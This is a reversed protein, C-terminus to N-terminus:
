ASQAQVSRAMKEVVRRITALDFPKEVVPNPVEAIFDRARDTFAGGTIFVFRHALAPRRAVTRAYIEMGSLEPMMLDCLVVDYDRGDLLELSAAATTAIDTDHNRLVRALAATVLEDDDIVLVRLRPENSQQARAISLHSPMTTRDAAPLVVRLTTGCPRRREATIRGGLGEVINRCISLGLGTGQGSAKTTVFPEFIRTEMGEPVGVGTDSVEIVVLRGSARTRLVIEHNAADGVPLAQAANVVLNLFVQSLQAEDGLVAAVDGYDRVLTARHRIENTAMRLTSDLVRHLDVPTVTTMGPHSFVRLDRVTQRVRDAGVMAEDIATRLDDVGPDDIAALLDRVHELNSLVYTLPNNIEHAVGAALTGVSAMRDSIRVREALRERETQDRVIMAVHDHDYVGIRVELHRARGRRRLAFEVTESAEGALARDIATSLQVFVDQTVLEQLSHELLRDASLKWTSPDPNHFDRVVYDRSVLVVLDPITGLIGRLREESRRLAQEVRKRAEIDARLQANRELLETSTLDLSRELLLRDADAQDYAADIALMLPALDHPVQGVGHRTLQRRLLRHM